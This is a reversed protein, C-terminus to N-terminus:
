FKILVGTSLRMATNPWDDGYNFNTDINWYVPGLSILLGITTSYYRFNDDGSTTAFDQKGVGTSFRLTNTIICGVELQYFTFFKNIDLDSTQLNQVILMENFITETTYGLVGFVGLSNNGKRSTYGLFGNLQYSVKNSSFEEFKDTTSGQFYYVSPGLLLTIGQTSNKNAEPKASEKKQQSFLTSFIFCFLGVMIIVYNRM